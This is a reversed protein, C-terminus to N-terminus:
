FPCPREQRSFLTREERLRQRETENKCSKLSEYFNFIELTEHPDPCDLCMFDICGITDRFPCNVYRLQALKYSDMLILVSLILALLM